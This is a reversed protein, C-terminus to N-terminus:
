DKSPIIALNAGRGADGALEGASPVTAQADAEVTTKKSLDKKMGVVHIMTIIKQQLYNKELQRITINLATNREANGVGPGDVGKNKTFYVKTILDVHLFILVHM